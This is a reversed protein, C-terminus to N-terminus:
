VLSKLPFEHEPKALDDVPLIFKAVNRSAAARRRGSKTLQALPSAHDLRGTAALAGHM